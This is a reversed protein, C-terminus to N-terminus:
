KWFEKAREGFIQAHHPNAQLFYEVFKKIASKQPPTFKKVNEVLQKMNHIAEGELPILSYFALELIEFPNYESDFPALLPRVLFAPLYVHFADPTFLPLSLRHWYAVELTIDNWHKGSFDEIVEDAEYHNPNTVLKSGEPLKVDAFASQIEQVVEKKLTKIDTM